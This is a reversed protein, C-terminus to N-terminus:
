GRRNKGVVGMLQETKKASLGLNTNVLNLTQVIGQCFLDDKVLKDIRAMLVQEVNSLWIAGEESALSNSMLFAKDTKKM